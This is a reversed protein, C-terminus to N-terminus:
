RRLAFLILLLLFMLAEGGKTGEDHDVLAPGKLSWLSITQKIILALPTSLLIIKSTEILAQNTSHHLVLALISLVMISEQPWCDTKTTGILYDM